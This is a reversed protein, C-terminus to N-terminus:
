SGPYAPGLWVPRRFPTWEDPRQGLRDVVAGIVLPDFGLTLHTARVEINERLPGGDVSSNQWNVIQDNRSWISTLPVTEPRTTDVMTRLPSGLTIVQNVLDPFRTALSWGYVGGLSWGVVAVPAGHRETLDRLRVNLGAMLQETPGENRGLNWRHVRHGALTLSNRLGITSADGAAFGPLVLVPTRNPRRFLRRVM